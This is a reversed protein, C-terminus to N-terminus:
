ARWSAVLYAVGYPAEHRHLRASLRGAGAAAGALAQWAVRGGVLLQECQRPDLAMLADLDPGGLARAVEEDHPRAREDLYGPGKVSRRASGDGLVVLGVRDARRALEAGLAAAREPALDPELGFPLLPVDLASRGLLWRGITLSLPLTPPADGAGVVVDVGYGRLSGRAAPEYPGTRPATGVLVVVGLDSVISPIRGTILWSLHFHM